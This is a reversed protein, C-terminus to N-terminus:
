SADLDAGRERHKVARYGHAEGAPQAARDTDCPAIADRVERAAAAPLSAHPTAKPRPSITSRSSATTRVSRMCSQRALRGASVGLKKMILMGSESVRSKTRKM